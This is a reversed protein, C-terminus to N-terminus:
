PREDVIENEEREGAYDHMDAYAEDREDTGEDDFFVEFDDAMEERQRDLDRHFDDIEEDTMNKEIKSKPRPVGMPSGPNNSIEELHEESERLDLDVEGAIIADLFRSFKSENSENLNQPKPFYSELEEKIVQRLYTKSIKM